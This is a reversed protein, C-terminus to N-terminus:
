GSASPGAPARPLAGPQDLVKVPRSRGDGTTHRLPLPLPPPLRLGRTLRRPVITERELSPHCLLTQLGMVVLLLVHERLLLRLMQGRLVM